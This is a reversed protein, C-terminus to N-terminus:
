LGVSFMQSLKEPRILPGSKEVTSQSRQLPQLDTSNKLSWHSLWSPPRYVPYLRNGEGNNAKEMCVRYNQGKNNDWHPTAGPGSRFSVCFEIREKPDINQPLSLDFAFLGMDSGRYHLQQLFTCPIDHHSKWSDFTVRLHVANEASGHFVWVKGRLSQDTINCSELQVRMERLHALFAKFDVAPQPFGLRFKYRQINKSPSQQGQLQASSPTMLLTSSNSTPEPTFLRVATLALGMADAFVVRKKNGGSNDRRFCSRPESPAFSSPPLSTLPLSSYRPSHARSRPLSDTPWCRHKAPKMPSMSLLQYLPQRQSLSLCVALDVPMVAAQPHGGLAHLVRTCNM